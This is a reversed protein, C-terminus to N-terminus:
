PAAMGSLVAAIVQDALLRMLRRRADEEAALGAVSTGTASWGAFNRVLGKALEAGDSQRVLSWRASGTLVYRTTAGGATIGVGERSTEIDYRLEFEPRDARGLREEVRAVFDYDAQNSPSEARVTGILGRAPSGTGLVPSFGCGSLLLALVLGRRGADIRGPATMLGDGCACLGDPSAANQRSSARSWSM